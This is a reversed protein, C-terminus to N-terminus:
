LSKDVLMSMFRESKIRELKKSPTHEYVKIPSCMSYKLAGISLLCKKFFCLISFKGFENKEELIPKIHHAVLKNYTLSFCLFYALFGTTPWFSKPNDNFGEGISFTYFNTLLFKRWLFNLVKQRKKLLLIHKISFFDDNLKYSFSLCWIKLLTRNM